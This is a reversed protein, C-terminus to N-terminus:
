LTAMLLRALFYRPINEDLYLIDNTLVKLKITFPLISIYNKTSLSVMKRIMVEGKKVYSYCCTQMDNFQLRLIYYRYFTQGCVHGVLTQPCELARVKPVLLCLLIMALFM